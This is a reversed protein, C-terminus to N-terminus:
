IVMNLANMISLNQIKIGDPVKLVLDTMNVIGKIGSDILKDAMQQASENKVTLIAYEIGLEKIVRKMESAPYLPFTSRLVEVRYLNSDFGAKIKFLSGETIQDDLLAAGLRGLGVICCNRGGNSVEESEKDTEIGLALSIAKQLEDRRYGNSVGKNFGLLWLDHRILSDKWGTSGSIAASTIKDGPWTKLLQYLGAMRKRTVEPIEIEQM